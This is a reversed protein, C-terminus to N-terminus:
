APVKREIGTASTDFCLVVAPGQARDVTADRRLVLVGDDDIAIIGDQDGLDIAAVYSGVAISLSVLMIEANIMDNDGYM